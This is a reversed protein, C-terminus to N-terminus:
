NKKKRLIKTIFNIKSVPEEIVFNNINQICDTKAKDQLKNCSNIGQIINEKTLKEQNNAKTIAFIKDIIEITLGPNYIEEECKNCMSDFPIRNEKKTLNILCEILIFNNEKINFINIKSNESYNLLTNEIITYLTKIDPEKIEIKDLYKNLTTNYIYENYSEFTTTGIIKLNKQDIYQNILDIIFKDSEYLLHINDIFIIDNNAIIKDFLEKIEENFAECYKDSTILRTIDFIKKNKLFDPIENKQIKYIIHNIISSKGTGKNGILLPIKKTQALSILINKIEEDRKQTPEFKIEQNNLINIYKKEINNKSDSNIDVKLNNMKYIFQALEKESISENNLIKQGLTNILEDSSLKDLVSLIFLSFPKTNYITSSGVYCSSDKFYTYEINSLIDIYKEYVTHKNKTVITYNEGIFRLYYQGQKLVRHCHGVEGIFLENPNYFKM